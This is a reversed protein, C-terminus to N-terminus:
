KLCQSYCNNKKLQNLSFFHISVNSFFIVTKFCTFQQQTKNCIEIFKRSPVKKIGLTDQERLKKKVCQQIWSITQKDMAVPIWVASRWLELHVSKCITGNVLVLYIYIFSIYILLNLPINTQRDRGLTLCWAKLMRSLREYFTFWKQLRSSYVNFVM